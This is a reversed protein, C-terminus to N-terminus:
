YVYYDAGGITSGTPLTKFLEVKGEENIKCTDSGRWLIIETTGRCLLDVVPNAPTCRAYVTAPFVHTLAKVWTVSDLSFTIEGFPDSFLSHLGSEVINITITEGTFKIADPPMATLETGAPVEFNFFITNGRLNYEYTQVGDLYVSTPEFDVTYDTAAYDLIYKM